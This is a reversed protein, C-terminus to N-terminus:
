QVKIKGTEQWYKETETLEQDEVKNAEIEYPHDSHSGRHKIWLGIYRVYFKVVGMRRIQYCHQLEHRFLRDERQQYWEEYEEKPYRSDEKIPKLWVWPWLVMGRAWFMWWANRVVRFRVPKADSVFYGVVVFLAFLVAFFILGDLLM